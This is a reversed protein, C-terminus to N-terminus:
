SKGDSSEKKISHGLRYKDQLYDLGEKESHRKLM